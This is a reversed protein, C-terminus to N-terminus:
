NNIDLTCYSIHITLNKLISYEITVAVQITLQM